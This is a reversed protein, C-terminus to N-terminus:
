HSNVAKQPTSIILATPVGSNNRNALTFIPPGRAKQPKLQTRLILGKPWEKTKFEKAM